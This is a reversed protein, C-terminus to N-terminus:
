YKKGHIKRDEAVEADLIDQYAKRQMPVVERIFKKKNAHAKVHTSDIFLSKPDVFGKEMAIALIHDFIQEFLDTHQFRRVYNKGFNTFHPIKDQPSYGLFWRYAMNVEIEKITQRMSRIGFLYQIFIIKFLVVPDVSPRGNGKCYLPEVLPYIFAFDIVQDIKHLLHDKPVFEELCFFEVDNRKNRQELSLMELRM